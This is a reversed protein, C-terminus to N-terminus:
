CVAWQVYLLFLEKWSVDESHKCIQTKQKQKDYILRVFPNGAGVHVFRNKPHISLVLSTLLFETLEIQMLFHYKKPFRLDFHPIVCTTVLLSLTLSTGHKTVLSIGEMVAFHPFLSNSFPDAAFLISFQEHPSPQPWLICTFTTFCLELRNRVTPDAAITILHM